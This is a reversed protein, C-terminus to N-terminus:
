KDKKIIIDDKLEAILNGHVNHFQNPKIDFRKHKYSHFILPSHGIYDGGEVLITCIDGEDDFNIQSIPYEKDKLSESVIKIKFINKM